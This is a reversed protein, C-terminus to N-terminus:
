LGIKVSYGLARLGKSTRMNRPPYDNPRAWGIVEGLTSLGMHPIIWDDDRIAKWLRHAIDGSGWIVYHLLDLPSRGQKSRQPWLWRAFQEIKKEAPQPMDPLGLFVNGQKTAHDRIAHVRSCLDVFENENLSLLSDKALLERLRASWEYITREEFSHDFDADTWWQLIQQLALEPNGSNTRFHEEYPHRNGEKVINYYYAHLFQDAQVGKPVSDDVWKPRVSSDSIRNAISRMIQLTENWDKEFTRFRQDSSKKKDVVTSLGKQKPLRRKKNFSEEAQYDKTELDKMLNKLGFQEKYIEESLPHSRDQLDEFFQVLESEMGNNVLEEHTLYVGTEINHFWARFSLNASGIYVGSDIWWIVKSHLIDPVLRCEYNPSAMDLFWRLVEPDIPVTHNYRGYFELPVLKRCCTEFLHLNDKNAYAIAARIRTCQDTNESLIKVLLQNNLPGNILKM